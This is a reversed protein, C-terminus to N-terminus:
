EGPDDSADDTLGLRKAERILDRVQGERDVNDAPIGIADAIERNKLGAHKLRLAKLRRSNTEMKLAARAAVGPAQFQGLIRRGRLLTGLEALSKARELHRVTTEGMDGTGLWYERRANLDLDWDNQRQGYFVCRWELYAATSAHSIVIQWIDL